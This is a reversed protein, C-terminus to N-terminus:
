KNKKFLAIICDGMAPFQKQIFNPKVTGYLGYAFHILEWQHKDFKQLLTYPSFYWQHDPHISETQHLSSAISDFSTYNPVTIMLIQGKRLCGTCMNIFSIPDQMHEMVEGALILEYSLLEDKDFNELKIAQVQHDGTLQKYMEVSVNDTDIGWIFSAKNRLATHLLTKREIKEKTYPADAFGIHVIKKAAAYNLIFDIRNVLHGRPVSQLWKKQENSIRYGLGAKLLKLGSWIWLWKLKKM